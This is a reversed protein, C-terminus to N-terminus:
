VIQNKIMEFLLLMLFPAKNYYSVYELLECSINHRLIVYINGTLIKKKFIGADTDRLCITCLKATHM